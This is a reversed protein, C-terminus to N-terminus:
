GVLVGVSGSVYYVDALLLTYFMDLSWLFGCFDVVTRVYIM